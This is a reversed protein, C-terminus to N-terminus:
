QLLPKEFKQIISYNAKKLGRQNDSFLEMKDSKLCFDIVLAQLDIQLDTGSNSAHRYESNLLAISSNLLFRCCKTFIRWCQVKVGKVFYTM